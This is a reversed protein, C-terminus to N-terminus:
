TIIHEHIQPKYSENNFNTFTNSNHKKRRKKM